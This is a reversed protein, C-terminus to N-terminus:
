IVGWLMMGDKGLAINLNDASWFHDFHDGADDVVKPMIENPIGFMLPIWSAYDLSFPDFIGSFYLHECYALHFKFLISFVEILGKCLLFAHM